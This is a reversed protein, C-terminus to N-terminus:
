YLIIKSIKYSKGICRSSQCRFQDPSCEPCRLEDSGDACDQHGDCKWSLPLCDKVSKNPTACSFLEPDCVPPNNCNRLDDKLVLEMPCSCM